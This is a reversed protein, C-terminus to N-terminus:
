NFAAQPEVKEADDLGQPAGAAVIVLSKEDLLRKAVRRADALTVASIIQQRKDMYNIGLDYIQMSVLFSSMAGSTAVKLPFNGSLYTKADDLEAETPGKDAMEQWVQKLLKVAEGAGANVVQSGGSIIGSDAYPVLGTGIGYTLGRKERIESTLRSTFGGGGLIRNVLTATIFDPDARTIGPQGFVLTTQKEDMEAVKLSGQGHFVPAPVRPLTSKEPLDGFLRDLMPGLEAATIDGTVGVVLRDRTLAARMWGRLDDPTLATLSAETGELPRAYPHDGYVTREWLRGAVEGPDTVEDRIGSLVQQKIRAVPEADFRPSTLAMHVLEIARDRHATLTKFGVTFYDEAADASFRVAADELADQFAESSLDGAGEDMLGSLLWSLGEKGEPDTAAGGRWAVSVAMLPQSHDEVLWATLGGPSKVQQVETAWAAPALLLLACAFLLSQALRSM